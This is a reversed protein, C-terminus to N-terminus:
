KFIQGVVFIKLISAILTLFQEEVSHEFHKKPIQWQSLLNSIEFKSLNVSGDEQFQIFVENDIHIHSNDINNCEFYDQIKRAKENNFADDLIEPFWLVEETQGKESIYYECNELTANYYM